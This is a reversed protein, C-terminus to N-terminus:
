IALLSLLGGWGPEPIVVAHEVLAHPIAAGIGFWSRAPVARPVKVMKRRFHFEHAIAGEGIRLQSPIRLPFARSRKAWVVYGDESYAVACPSSSIEVYRVASAVVSTRFARGIADITSLTPANAAFPEVYEDPMLFEAAFVDAEREQHASFPFSAESEHQSPLQHGLLYHGLEHAVTFRLRGLQVIQDSIRMIARDGHRLIQATAGDLRCYIVEIKHRGVVVFPDIKSPEDMGCEWLVQRALRRAREYRRRLVAM